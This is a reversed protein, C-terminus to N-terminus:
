NVNIDTERGQATEANRSANNRIHTSTREYDKKGCFVGFLDWM